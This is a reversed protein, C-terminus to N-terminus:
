TYHFHFHKYYSNSEFLNSKALNIAFTILFLTTHKYRKFLLIYLFAMWLANLKTWFCNSFKKRWPLTHVCFWMMENRNVYLNSSFSKGVGCVALRRLLINLLRKWPHDQHIRDILNDKHFMEYYPKSIIKLSEENTQHHGAASPLLRHNFSLHFGIVWVYTIIFIHVSFWYESLWVQLYAM